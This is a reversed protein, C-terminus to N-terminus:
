ADQGLGQGAAVRARGLSGPGAHAATRRIRPRAPVPAARILAARQSMSEYRQGEARELQPVADAPITVDALDDLFEQRGDFDAPSGALLYAAVRRAAPAASRHPSGPGTPRSVGCGASTGACYRTRTGSYWCSLTRRWTAAYSALHWILARAATRRRTTACDALALRAEAPRGASSRRNPALGARWATHGQLPNAVACLRGSRSAAGKM